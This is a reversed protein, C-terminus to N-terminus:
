DQPNYQMSEIMATVITNLEAEAGNGASAVINGFIGNGMDMIILVGIVDDGAAEHWLVEYGSITLEIPEYVEIDYMVPFFQTLFQDLEQLSVDADFGLNMATLNDVGTVQVVFYMEGPGPLVQLSTLEDVPMNGIAIATVNGLPIAITGLNWGDPYHFTVTGDESVYTQGLEIDTAPQDEADIEDGMSIDDTDCRALIDNLADRMLRITDVATQTDGSSAAIQAEILLASEVSLNIDCDENQANVPGMLLLTILLISLTTRM